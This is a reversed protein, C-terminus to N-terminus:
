GEENRPKPGAPAASARSRRTRGTRSPDKAGEQSRRTRSPGKSGEQNRRARSPDTSGGPYRRVRGPRGKGRVAAFAALARQRAAAHEVIPPPYDIGASRAERLRGPDHLSESPVDRLEPLYRRIFRGEPDFRRGQTWPNFIRFYPAADTGTSASWQWGGNNNALDGDVLSRMFHREGARWDILLHKTLFMATIMRLRNHMWGTDRLQRMGADVIPYGTRGERWADLGRPDERWRVQETELRFPRNRSVRPFGVLVHRYFERWILQDIWTSYGAHGGEIRGDDAAIAEIFARRISLSGAALHPSLGSTAEEAPVDRAAHYRGASSDLFRRLLKRSAKEGASGAIPSDGRIRYGAFRRPIPTSRGARVRQRRPRPLVDPLGEPGLRRLFARRFPTYVTYYGGSGSQLSGPPVLTQDDYTNVPLGLERFAKKVLEDRRRENVELEHNFFLADCRQSQAIRRLVRPVDAFDPATEVILPIDLRELDDALSQLCALVFGVKPDGWDHAAWQRPTCVFTAVVGETARGAARYLAPNDDIRLDSRFWVLPRV